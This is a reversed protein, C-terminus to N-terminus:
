TTPEPPKVIPCVRRKNLPEVATRYSFYQWERYQISWCVSQPRECAEVWCPHCNGDQPFPPEDYWVAPPAAPEAPYRKRFQAVADDAIDGCEAVEYGERSYWRDYVRRWLAMEQQNRNM